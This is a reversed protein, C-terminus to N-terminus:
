KKMAQLGAAFADAMDHHTRFGHKSKSGGGSANFYNMDCPPAVEAGKGRRAAADEEEDDDDEDDSDFAELIQRNLGSSSPMQDQNQMRKHLELRVAKSYSQSQQPQHQQQYNQQKQQPEPNADLAAMPDFKSPPGSPRM